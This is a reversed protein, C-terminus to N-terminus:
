ARRRMRLAEALFDKGTVQYWASSIDKFFIQNQPDEYLTAASAADWDLTDEVTRLFLNMRTALLFLYSTAKAVASVKVKEGLEILRRAPDTSRIGLRDTMLHDDELMLILKYFIISWNESLDEIENYTRGRLQRGLNDLLEALANPNGLKEITIDKDLIGQFINYMISEFTRNFEPNYSSVKPFNNEKGKITYGFLRWYANYRLQELDQVITSTPKAFVCQMTAKIDEILQLDAQRNLKLLEDTTVYSTFLARFAEVIGTSEIFYPYILHNRTNTLPALYAFDATRAPTLSLSLTSPAIMMAPTARTSM